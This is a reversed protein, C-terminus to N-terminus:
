PDDISRRAARLQGESIRLLVRQIKSVLASPVSKEVYDEAGLELAVDRDSDAYRGSWVLVPIASTASNKKLTSLLDRGDIDPLGIDLVILDPKGLSLLSMM